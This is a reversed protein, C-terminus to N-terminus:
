NVKTPHLISVTRQGKNMPLHFSKESVVTFQPGTKLYDLPDSRYLILQGELRLLRVVAGEIEDLRLARLVVVDFMEHKPDNQYQQATGSFVSVDRLQLTGVMHTLFSCKKQNSEIMVVKIDPRAIKLPLGPFGAGSGMDGVMAGQPIETATLATLSDIFHKIVIEQPDIIGTLNIVRNWQTLQELYIM